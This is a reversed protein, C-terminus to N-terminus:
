RIFLYRIDRKKFAYKVSFVLWYLHTLFYIFAGHRKMLIFSARRQDRYRASAKAFPEDNAYYNLTHHMNYDLVCLMSHSATYRSMFDNDTGYFRIREDYGEFGHKLYRASIIMGSNIAFINKCSMMGPFVEKFNHGKFYHFSAPSVITNDYHVIPLFLDCDTQKEISRCASLFYDATFESDDDFIVLYQRDDLESIAENYIRSLPLNNGQNHRYVFSIDALLDDLEQKEDSTFAEPSNDRICIHLGSKVEASMTSLSMLTSSQRPQKKYLVVVIYFLPSKM